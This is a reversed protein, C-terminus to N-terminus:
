TAHVGMAATGIRASHGGCWRRHLTIRSGSVPTTRYCQPIGAASTSWRLGGDAAGGKPGNEIAGWDAREDKEAFRLVETAGVGGRWDRGTLKPGACTRGYASAGLIRLTAAADRVCAPISSM